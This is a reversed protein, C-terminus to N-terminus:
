SRFKSSCIDAQISSDTQMIRMSLYRASIPCPVLLSILFSIRLPRTITSPSANKTKHSFWNGM